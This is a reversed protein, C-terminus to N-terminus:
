TSSADSASSSNNQCYRGIGATRHFTVSGSMATVITVNDKAPQTSTNVLVKRM